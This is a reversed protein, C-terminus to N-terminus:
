HFDIIQHAYGWLERGDNSNMDFAPRGNCEYVAVVQGTIEQDMFNRYTVTQYVFPIRVTPRTRRPTVKLSM